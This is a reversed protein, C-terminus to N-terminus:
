ICVLTFASLHRLAWPCATLLFLFFTSLVLYCYSLSVRGCVFLRMNVVPCRGGKPMKEVELFEYAAFTLNTNLFAYLLKTCSVCQLSFSRNQFQIVDHIIRNFVWLNTKFFYLWCLEVLRWWIHLSFDDLTADLRLTKINDFTISLTNLTCLTMTSSASSGTPTTYSRATGSSPRPYGSYM